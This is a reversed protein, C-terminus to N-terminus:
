GFVDAGAVRLPEGAHTATLGAGALAPRALAWPVAAALARRPDVRRVELGDIATTAVLHRSPEVAGADHREVQTTQEPRGDHWLFRALYVGGRGADALAVLSEGEEGRAAAAVALLNGAGHLALGRASAVGLAAAMGARVGSYSGPGTLVVMAETSDDLLEGIAIALCADLRGGPVERQHTIAGATDTRLVLARVRSATDVAVVSV